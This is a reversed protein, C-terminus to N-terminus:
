CVLCFLLQYLASTLDLLSYVNASVADIKVTCPTIKPVLILTLKSCVFHICVLCWYWSYCLKTNICMNKYYLDIFIVLHKKHWMVRQLTIKMNCNKRRYTLADRRFQENVLILPLLGKWFNDTITEHWYFPTVKGHLSSKGLVIQKIEFQLQCNCFQDRKRAALWRLNVSVHLQHFYFYIWPLYAPKPYKVGQCYLM